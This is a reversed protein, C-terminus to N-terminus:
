LLLIVFFAGGLIGLSRFLKQKEPIQIGLSEVKKEQERVYRELLHIQMEKDLYGLNCAAQYFEQIDEKELFTGKMKEELTIQLSHSFDEGSANRMREALTALFVSFPTDTKESIREMAEPLTTRAFSIEGKLFDGIKIFEKLQRVRGAYQQGKWFGLGCCSFFLLAAGLLRIM